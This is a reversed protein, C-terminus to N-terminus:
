PMATPSGPPLEGEHLHFITHSYGMSDLWDAIRAPGRHPGHQLLHLHM